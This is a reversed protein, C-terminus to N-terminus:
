NKSVGDKERYRYSNEPTDEYSDPLSDKLAQSEGSPVTQREESKDEGPCDLCLIRDKEIKYLDGEYDTFRLIGSDIWTNYRSKFESPISIVQGKPIELVVDLSQDMFHEMLSLDAYKDIILEDGEIMFDYSISAANERAQRLSAGKSEKFLKIRFLSDASTAIGYDVEYLKHQWLENPELDTYVIKWDDQQNINELQHNAVKLQLTDIGITEPVEKVQVIEEEFAMAAVSKAFIVASSILTIIWIAGVAIKFTRGTSGLSPVLLKLGLVLLILLPLGFLLTALMIIWYPSIDIPVFYAALTGIDGQYTGVTGLGFATLVVSLLSIGAVIFIFLGIIRLLISALTKVVRGLRTFFRTSARQTRRGAGKYDVNSVRDVFGDMQRKFNKGLNDINVPKGMMKLRQAPTRAEPIAILGVIYLMLPTGFFFFLSLLAIIRIWVADIGFYHGIGACVGGVYGNITDRYLPRSSTKYYKDGSATGSTQTSEAEDDLHYDSPEGMISIIRDIAEITVVENETKREELLLEAVRAEIDKMLEKREQIDQFSLEVARLYRSLKDYADEDIHFFIGALNINVTKNM